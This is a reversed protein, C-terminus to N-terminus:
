RAHRESGAQELEFGIVATLTASHRLKDLCRARSPGISGVPMRLAAGIEQYPRPPDELLLLLLQRCRLSLQAFASRVAHRREALLLDEDVPAGPDPVDQGDTQDVPENRKSMRLVRLCERRSTTAVWGPLAAPERLDPLHEVLRLWVSQGVDEADAASLRYRRCIAWVLPAYREVLQDWAGKDGDRAQAVLRVVVPDNRM